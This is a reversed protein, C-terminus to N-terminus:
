GGKPVSFPWALGVQELRGLSPMLDAVLGCLRGSACGPVLGCLGAWAGLSLFILRWVRGPFLSCIGPSGGRGHWAVFDKTFLLVRSDIRHSTDRLLDRLGHLPKGPGRALRPCSAPARGPQFLGRNRPRCVPSSSRIQNRIDSELPHREQSARSVWVPLPPPPM